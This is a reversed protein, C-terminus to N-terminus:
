LEDKIKPLYKLCMYRAIIEKVYFLPNQTSLLGEMLRSIVKPLNSKDLVENIDHHLDKGYSYSYFARGFDEYDIKYKSMDVDDIDMVLPLMYHRKIYMFLVDRWKADNVLDTLGEINNHFPGYMTIFDEYLESVIQKEKELLPMSIALTNNNNLLNCSAEWDVAAAMPFNANEALSNLCGFGLLYSFRDQLWLCAGSAEKKWSSDNENAELIPPIKKIIGSVFQALLVQGILEQANSFLDLSEGRQYKQYTNYAEFLLYYTAWCTHTCQLLKYSYSDCSNNYTNGKNFEAAHSLSLLFILVFLFGISQKM